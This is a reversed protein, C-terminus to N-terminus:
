VGLSHLANITIFSVLRALSVKQSPSVTLCQRSKQLTKRIWEPQPELQVPVLRLLAGAHKGSPSPRHQMAQEAEQGWQHVAQGTLAVEVLLSIAMQVVGKQVVM